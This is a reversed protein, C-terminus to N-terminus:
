LYFIALESCKVIQDFDSTLRQWKRVDRFHRNKKQLIVRSCNFFNSEENKPSKMSVTSPNKHQRIVKPAAIM